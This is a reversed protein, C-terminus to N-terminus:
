GRRWKKPQHTRLGRRIACKICYGSQTKGPKVRRGCGNCAIDKHPPRRRGYGGDDDGM